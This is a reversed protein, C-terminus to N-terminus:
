KLAAEQETVPYISHTANQYRETIVEMMDDLISDADVEEEFELEVVMKVKSM